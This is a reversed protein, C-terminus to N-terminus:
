AAEGRDAADHAALCLDVGTLLVFGCVWCRWMCVRLLLSAGEWLRRRARRRARRAAQPCRPPPAARALLLLLAPVEV